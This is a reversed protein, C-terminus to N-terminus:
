REAGAKEKEFVAKLIRKDCETPKPSRGAGAFYLESQRLLRAFRRKREDEERIRALREVERDIAAGIREALDQPDMWLRGRGGDLAERLGRRLRQPLVWCDDNLKAGNM